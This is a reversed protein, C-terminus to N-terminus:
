LVDSACKASSAPDVGQSAFNPPIYVNAGNILIKALQVQALAHGKEAARRCWVAAEVHNRIVGHGNVYLQAIKFDAEPNGRRSAKQWHVLAQYHRQNAAAADGRQLDSAFLRKLPDVLLSTPSM